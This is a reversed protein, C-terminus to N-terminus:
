FLKKIDSVTILLILTLLVALGVTHIYKEVTQNMKKRTIAEIGLFFLRGGDLGPFPLINVIALNLSLGAMFDLYTTLSKLKIIIGVLQVIGVPGAVSQAVPAINKEQYSIQFLQGLLAGSYVVLNYSQIPGAFIKQLPTAFNLSAFESEGLSVNQIVEERMGIGVAGQGPAPNVRPTVTVDNQTNKVPDNVTIMLPKGANQLIRDHVDQMGLVPQNNIAILKDGQKFGAQQAPSGDEVSDIFVDANSLTKVNVTEPHQKQTDTIALTVEQGPHAILYKELQEQGTVPQGDVANIRDGVTLGSKQDTPNKPTEIVVVASENTQSIGAFQHPILLPVQYTFGQISLVVYYLVWALLLNMFVGAAVVTIKKWNKQTQFSRKEWDKKDEETLDANELDEDEGLPRVFGGAPIANISWLTEGRKKGWIRPPLGFGFELVKIGFKKCALFHGFEHILVLILITIFFVVIDLFINLAINM